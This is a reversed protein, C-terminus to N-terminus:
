LGVLANTTDYVYVMIVILSDDMGGGGGSALSGFLGTATDLGPITAIDIKPINM